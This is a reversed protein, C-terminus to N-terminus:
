CSAAGELGDRFPDVLGTATSEVDAVDGFGGIWPVDILPVTYAVTITVRACRGFPAELSPEGVTARDTDRGYAALTETARAEAVVRAEEFSSAEVYARTAERAASTVAFKADIIGWVNVFLLTGSLFVLVGFPVVEIGGIQGADGRLRRSSATM